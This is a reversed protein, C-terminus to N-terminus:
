LRNIGLWGLGLVLATFLLPYDVLPLWWYNFVARVMSDEGTAGMTVIYLAIASAAPVYAAWFLLRRIPNEDSM